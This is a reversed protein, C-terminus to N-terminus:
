EPFEDSTYKEILDECGKLDRQLNFQNQWSSLDSDASKVETIVSAPYYAQGEPFYREINNYEIHLGNDKNIALFCGDEIGVFFDIIKGEDSRVVADGQQFGLLQGQLQGSGLLKDNFSNASSARDSAEERSIESSYFHGPYPTLSRTFTVWGM